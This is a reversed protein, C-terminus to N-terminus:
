PHPATPDIPAPACDTLVPKRNPKCLGEVAGITMARSVEMAVHPPLRNSNTLTGAEEAIATTVMLASITEAASLKTIARLRRALRAMIRRYRASLEPALNRALFLDSLLIHLLPGNAATENHYIDSCASAAERWDPVDIASQLGQEDLADLRQKLLANGLDFQTTFYSYILAKSIGIREALIDLHLPFAGQEVVMKSAADLIQQVRAQPTLRTRVSVSVMALRMASATRFDLFAWM